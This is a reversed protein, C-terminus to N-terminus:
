RDLHVPRKAVRILLTAGILAESSNSIFWSIFMRVPVGAGIQTAVHAPFAAALLVWWSRVPSLLLTSMLIANPLWLPSIPRPQYTLAFGIQAGLYYGAAVLLPVRIRQISPLFNRTPSTPRAPRARPRAMDTM